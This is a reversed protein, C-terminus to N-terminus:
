KDYMSVIVGILFGIIGIPFGIAWAIRRYKLGIETYYKSSDWKLDIWTKNELKEGEESLNHHAKYLYIRHIIVGLFFISFNYIKM